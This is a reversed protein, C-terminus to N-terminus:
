FQVYKVDEGSLKESTGDMYDIRIGTLKAKIITNNYWANEWVTGEGNWQGPNVPGTVKGTYESERRITCAVIDNVANYPVVTFRCYKIVKDSTNQWIVNFNVGGASNPNETYVKSVRIISRAKDVKSREALEKQRQAEEQKKALFAADEEKQKALLAAEENQAQTVYGQAEKDEKSGPHLKSLTTSANYLDKYQKREFLSRIEFIRREAGNQLESITEAQAQVTKALEKNKSNINGITILALLLALGLVSIIIKNRNNGM